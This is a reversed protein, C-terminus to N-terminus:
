ERKDHLCFEKNENRQNKWLVCGAIWEGKTQIVITMEYTLVHKSKYPIPGHKMRHEFFENHLLTVADREVQLDKKATKIETLLPLTFLAIIMLLTFASLTEVMTFGESKKM